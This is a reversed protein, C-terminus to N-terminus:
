KSVKRQWVVTGKKIVTDALEVGFHYALHKYNPMDWIVCDAQNGIELTGIQSCGIAKAANLTSAIFVEAPTMKMKICALTMMLPMSETMCTGPNMDTAISVPLGAAIMERAPAYNEQGLFFVAGPLLVPVVGKEVMSTIGQPSIHDLHDASIAGIEAALEAGASSSLQDAHIKPILGHTKGAELIRRSEEVSFVGEECFVDCFVALGEEAVRPIMEEIVMKIYDSRKARYEDPVEHGGLFTPILDLAHLSNLEHIVQLSKIEDDISLGYGSKAEITTTGNAIFRDLRPLTIEILKEKSCARLNRVSSRIGGGAQAIERYSKGLIRMEFEEERTKAFVPHTHPDILGPLVSKGTANIVITNNDLEVKEAVESTKGIAVIKGNSIALAGNEIILLGGFDNNEDAESQIVLPTILQSADKIILDIKM